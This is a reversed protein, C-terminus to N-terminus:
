KSLAEILNDTNEKFGKLIAEPDMKGDKDMPIDLTNIIVFEGGADKLAKIVNKKLWRDSVVVKIGKDKILKAVNEVTVSDYDVYETYISMDNLFYQLNESLSIVEANGVSLLRENAENEIKLLDATFKTINKEIKAKNKPYLRILDRGIINVMRVLNKSGMWIYPNVKGNSYDSFFITTMKEDYPHSADIEVINIKNMRAKGYIVDEPWVKAIDVVAQAKKAIALDFGEERISDKSMTMSVDSGFPTYVKIDTGKTLYSTLSYLPQISTIVINEAFSFSGIILMLIFLLKKKM